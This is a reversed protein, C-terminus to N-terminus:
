FEPIKMGYELKWDKILLLSDAMTIIECNMCILTCFVTLSATVVGSPEAPSQPSCGERPKLRRTQSIGLAAMHQKLALLWM